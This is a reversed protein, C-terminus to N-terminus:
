PGAGGASKKQAIEIRHTQRGPSAMPLESTLLHQLEM